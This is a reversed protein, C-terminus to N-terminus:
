LKGEFISKLLKCWIYHCGKITRWKWFQSAIKLRGISDMKRRKDFNLGTAVRGIVGVGSSGASTSNFTHNKNFFFESGTYQVLQQMISVFVNPQKTSLNKWFMYFTKLSFFISRFSINMSFEYLWDNCAMRFFIVIKWTAIVWTHQNWLSVRNWWNMTNM